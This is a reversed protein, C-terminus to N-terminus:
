CRAGRRLVAAARAGRRHLALHGACLVLTAVAVLLGYWGYRRAGAADGQGFLQAAFSSVIFTVGMPMILVTFANLGGTATSALAAAGLHAVM